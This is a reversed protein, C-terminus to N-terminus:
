FSHRYVRKVIDHLLISGNRNFPLLDPSNPTFFFTGLCEYLKYLLTSFVMEKKKKLCKLMKPFYVYVTNRLKTYGGNFLGCNVLPAKVKACLQICHNLNM